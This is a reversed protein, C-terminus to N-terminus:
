PLCKKIPTGKCTTGSPCALVAATGGTFLPSDCRTGQAVTGLVNLTFMGNNSSYGDVVVAYAGPAVNTMIVESPGVSPGDDDCALQTACDVTKVAVITDFSSGVTDIVLNAVPVPLQLGFTVDAANSTACTPTTNNAAGTTTGTTTHMAIKATPDVETACFVESTGGAGICGWDQAYDTQGDGDDDMGNNCAAPTAPNAEDTDGIASCGPDLPFDIKNDSDNDLGDFCVSQQCTRSGMAGQCAYGSACTLAGSQALAQECSGGNAITGSVNITFTGKSSNSYGDVVFYYTGAAVNAVNMATPDSCKIPAGTCSSPLLSTVTDVSTTLDLNLDTLQPLDLRYTLDPATSSSGACTPAVDNTASTTDGMTTATTITTVGESALCSESSSSASSCTNDGNNGFDTKGDSDNDVGDGCEPCGPGVGPCGDSEDDDTPSDCGPDDPYDNHTDDDEDLGDQCVHKSCVKTTGNKPIRCVLGPGCADPAVCDTGEGVYYNVKLSYNGGTADKSDVILFYTGPTSLSATLTSRKDTASINDNCAIESSPDMCNASRLSLVTDAMTGDTETTAVIVKPVLVRIEYVDEKGTGGCTPSQLLSPAGAMLNAVETTGTFPVKKFVIGGGCALPNSTYEETDAAKDCGTSDSPFDTQGNGDDDVGNSCQPCNPGDPCDDDENDQQAAFCGPDRPYDTHGDGDNDRGDNCQPSVRGDETLDDEGDCSPDDPFDKTGDGDNDKGDSCQINGGGTDEGGGGCAFPTTVLLTSALALLWRSARM